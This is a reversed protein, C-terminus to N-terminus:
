PSAGQMFALAPDAAVVDAVTYDFAARDGWEPVPPVRAGRLVQTVALPATRLLIAAALMFSAEQMSDAAFAHVIAPDRSWGAGFVHATDAGIYPSEVVGFRRSVAAIFAPSGEIQALTPGCVEARSERVDAVSSHPLLSPPAEYDDGWDFHCALPIIVVDIESEGEFRGSAVVHMTGRRGSEDARILVGTRDCNMEGPQPPLRGAIRPDWEWWTLGAPVMAKSLSTVTVGIDETRTQEALLAFRRTFVLRQAALVDYFLRHYGNRQGAKEQRFARTALRLALEPPDASAPHQAAGRAPAAKSAGSLQPRKAATKRRGKSRVKKV